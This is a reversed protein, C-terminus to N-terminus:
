VQGPGSKLKLGRKLGGGLGGKLRGGLRGRLGMHILHIVITILHTLM